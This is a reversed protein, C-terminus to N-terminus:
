LWYSTFGEAFREYMLCLRAATRGYRAEAISEPCGAENWIDILKQPEKDGAEGDWAWLLLDRVVKKVAHGGGIIRPLVKMHIALDLPNVEIGDETVFYEELERANLVFLVIEDRTRYGVQLQGHKLIGNLEELVAIVENM